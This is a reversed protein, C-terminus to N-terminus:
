GYQNKPIEVVIAEDVNFGSLSTNGWETSWNTQQFNALPLNFSSYLHSFPRFNSASRQIKTFRLDTGSITNYGDLNPNPTSYPVIESYVNKDYITKYNM